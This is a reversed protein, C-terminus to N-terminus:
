SSSSRWQRSMQTNLYEPSTMGPTTMRCVYASGGAAVQYSDADIFNIRAQRADFLFNGPNFDGVWVDEAHLSRLTELFTVATRTLVLRDINGSGQKLLRHQALVNDALSIGDVRRMAYGICQKGGDFVPFEPWAVEPLTACLQKGRLATLKGRLNKGEEGTLFKPLFIKVVRDAISAMPFVEGQGGAAIKDGLPYAVGNIDFVQRM